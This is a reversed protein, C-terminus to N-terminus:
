YRQGARPRLNRGKLIHQRSLMQPRHLKLRELAVLQVWHAIFNLINQGLVGGLAQVQPAARSAERPLWMLLIMVM